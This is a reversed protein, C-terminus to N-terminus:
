YGKKLRLYILTASVLVMVLQLFMFVDGAQVKKCNGVIKNVDDCYYCAEDGDIKKVGGNFLTNEIM